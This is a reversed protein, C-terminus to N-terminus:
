VTEPMVWPKRYERRFYQMATADDVQETVPDITLKRGGSRYSMTAYQFLLASRHGELVDANPRERTRLCQIFNEKHEPDPFGGNVQDKIVPLNDKTRVFVQWGGGHRGVMMLGESGYIEVRTACQPWYPYDELSDRVQGPIKLMYPTYLTLEFTLVLGDYEYVAMQTDPTEDIGDTNFKGGVCYATKPLGLDMVMRAMDIQHVGDNAMDGSSYRWYKHWHRQLNPNYSASPAPGNFLDWDLTSPVPADPVPAYDQMFKQNFVRVLHISGLKGDAIYQKAAAVYPASRSQTGVQVVREYKRAAEVMKQGEFPNYSAPKEVYVDKGAQCAFVTMMAHWHDPTAVVLADVSKDDLVQRFDQVCKPAQGGQLDATTKQRPEFLTTDVDCLYSFRCDTRQLFGAILHNGRGRLGAIALNVRENAPAGYVSEASRLITLGAALGLGTRQSRDLFARRNIRAM